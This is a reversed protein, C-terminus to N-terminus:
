AFWPRRENSDVTRAASEIHSRYDEWWQEDHLEQNLSNARM